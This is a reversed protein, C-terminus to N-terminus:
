MKSLNSLSMTFLTICCEYRILKISRNSLDTATRLIKLYGRKQTKTCLLTCRNPAVLDKDNFNENAVDLVMCNRQCNSVVLERKQNTLTRNRFNSVKDFFLFLFSLVCIKHHFCCFFMLFTYTFM